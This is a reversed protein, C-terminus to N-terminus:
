QILVKSTKGGQRVIYLGPGPNEVRIGQLNYYEAPADVDADIVDIGSLKGDADSVKFANVTVNGSISPCSIKLFRTEPNLDFTGKFPLDKETLIRITRWGPTIDPNRTEQISIKATAGSAASIETYLQAAQDNFYTMIKHATTTFTASSETTSGVQVWHPHESNKSQTSGDVRELNGPNSNFPAFDIPLSKAAFGWHTDGSKKAVPFDCTNLVIKGGEWSQGIADTVAGEPITITYTSNADLCSYSVTLSSGAAAVSINEFQHEGDITVDKKDLEIAQTFTLSVSGDAYTIDNVLKGSKIELPEVEGPIFKEILVDMLDIGAETTVPRIVLTANETDKNYTYTHKTVHSKTSNASKFTAIQEDTDMEGDEDTDTQLNLGLTYSKGDTNYSYITITWPGTIDSIKMYNNNTAGIGKKSNAGAFMVTGKSSGEHESSAATGTRTPYYHVRGGTSGLLFNGFEVEDTKGSAVFDCEAGAEKVIKAEAFAKPCTRFDTYFITGGDIVEFSYVASPTTGIDNTADVRWYYTQDVEIDPYVFTTETLGTAIKKLNEADNGVYLTYTTNGFYDETNNSWALENNLIRMKKGNEPYTLTTANPKFPEDVTRSKLTTSYDSEVGDGITKIRFYYTTNEDLDSATFTTVNEGVEGAKTFTSNDTSKEIVFGTENDSNDKWSITIASKKIEVSKLETPYKVYPYPGEISFVYAELNTYGDENIKVADSADNPDLGNATEWEDPIGDNDTDKTKVGRFLTGTGQHPLVKETSIGDTTGFTGFSALEDLLYKDVEDHVPLSAGVNKLVWELAEPATQRGKIEPFSKDTSKTQTAMGTNVAAMDALRDGGWDIYNQDTILEGDLKGDKNSDYYNGSGYFHFTDNGGIFPRAASKWPGKVFYNDTIEAWSTGASTGGMNYAAGNGWNYLVNNVFQHIGKVKPNRTKNEIYLNRYVTLGGNTQHLGGCSHTQLGQGIISNQLTINGPEKGKNDWSFSFNEDQGWLVSLHDFIMDTGNAVGCADKGSTGGKGMRFRMYRVILQDAGSFSVRDGYVQIGEGPATQGLITNHGKVVLASKLNITGCVDFIIIRGSGSVADRLSGEGSDNLNTVHYIEATGNGNAGYRGGITYRGFGEAGPFALVQDAATAAVAGAGAVLGCALVFKSILKM